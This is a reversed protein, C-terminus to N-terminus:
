QLSKQANAKALEAAKIVKDAQKEAVIEKELNAELKHAKAEAQSKGSLAEKKAMEEQQLAKELIGKEKM